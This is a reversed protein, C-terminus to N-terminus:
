GREFHWSVFRGGALRLRGAM